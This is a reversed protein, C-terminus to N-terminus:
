NLCVGVYKKWDGKLVIKVPNVEKLNLQAFASVHDGFTAEIYNVSTVSEVNSVCIHDLLSQKRIGNITRRWTNFTIVQLLNNELVFNQLLELPIKYNDHYSILYLVLLVSSSTSM